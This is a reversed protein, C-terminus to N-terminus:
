CKMNGVPIVRMVCNLMDKRSMQYFDALPFVTNLFLAFVGSELIELADGNVSPHNVSRKSIELSDLEAEIQERNTNLLLTPKSGKRGLLRRRAVANEVYLNAQDTKQDKSIALPEKIGYHDPILPIYRHASRPASGVQRAVPIVQNAM